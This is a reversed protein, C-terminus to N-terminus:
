SMDQVFAGYMTTGDSVFSLVDVANATATLTPATGGAWEYASGYALTISGATGQSVKALYTGASLNTPNALTGNSAAIMTIQNYLGADWAISGGENGKAEVLPKQLNRQTVYKKADSAASDEIIYKDAAVPTAKETLAAIEGSQNDHIGVPDYGDLQAM